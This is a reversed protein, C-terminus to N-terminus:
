WRRVRGTDLHVFDSKAYYGVGGAKLYIAADRLTLTDIDRLRVDIAKGLMHYSFKAVGKSKNRLAANTQPSRYASIIEYPSSSGTKIKLQHLLDLLETDIPYVDDTRFDSLFRNIEILAETIYNRGDHYTINLAKGTHTHYFNLSRPTTKAFVSAPKFALTVALASLKVFDRRNLPNFIPM